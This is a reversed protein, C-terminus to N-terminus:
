RATELLPDGSSSEPPAQPISFTFSLGIYTLKSDTRYSEPLIYTEIDM